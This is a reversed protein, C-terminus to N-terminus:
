SGFPNDKGFLFSGIEQIVIETEQENEHFRIQVLGTAILNTHKTIRSKLFRADQNHLRKARRSKLTGYNAMLVLFKTKAQLNLLRIFKENFLRDGEFLVAEARLAKFITIMNEATPQVNMPLKDTGEFKGGNYCGLIALRYKPYWEYRLIGIKRREYPGLYPIMRKMLYTKGSGPEGGIGVVHIM